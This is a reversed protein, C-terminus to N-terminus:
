RHQGVAAAARTLAELATQLDADTHAAGIGYHMPVRRGPFDAFYLGERLAARVFTRSQALDSRAASAFDVPPDQVGFYLGFRAGLGRVLVAVDAQDFATQLGDHFATARRNLDDYFGPASLVQLAALAAHVAAPHTTYTGSLPVGGGPELVQMVEASGALAAIPWGAGLAKALTTLDPVVGYHGQAGDLGMRFGSLIEDFVLVIGRERTLRRLEQLWAPDAPVCGLNYSVPEVLVAALEDGHADLVARLADTDNFPVALTLDVVADPVGLSDAPAHGSSDAPSTWGSLVADHMGHYHGTFRLIKSRGTAARAVRVAILTAETGSNAFRVREASPLIECIREALAVAADSEAACVTGAALARRVAEDVAPHAHGLLSAGSGGTFDLFERGGLDTVRAGAGARIYFPRGLAEHHRSGSTVGGPLVARARRQLDAVDSTTGLDTTTM